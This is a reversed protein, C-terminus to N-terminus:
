SPATLVLKALSYLRSFSKSCLDSIVATSTRHCASFNNGSVPRLFPYVYATDTSRKGAMLGTGLAKEVKCLPPCFLYRIQIM